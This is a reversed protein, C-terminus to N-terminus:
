HATFTTGSLLYLASSTSTTLIYVTGNPQGSYTAAGTGTTLTVAGLAIKGASLTGGHLNLPTANTGSAILGLNQLSQELDNTGTQQVVPHAGFFGVKQRPSKGITDGRGDQSIDQAHGTAIAIALSALTLLSCFFLKM